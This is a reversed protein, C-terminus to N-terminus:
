LNQEEGDKKGDGNEFYDNPLDFMEILASAQEESPKAYGNEINSYQSQSAGIKAAVEIQPMLSQRRKTSLLERKGDYTM